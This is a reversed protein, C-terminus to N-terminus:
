CVYFRLKVETKASRGENRAFPNVNRSEGGAGGEAKLSFSLFFALSLFLLSIHSFILLHSSSCIHSFTHLHASTFILLHSLLHSSIHLHASTFILLHSSSCIHSFIHLHASTFILLHSLLHSSSCIHLHASTFILLHSSSCIHLHSSTFILLHSVSTFILLHSSSFILYLGGSNSSGQAWVSEPFFAAYCSFMLYFTVYTYNCRLAMRVLSMYRTVIYMDNDM